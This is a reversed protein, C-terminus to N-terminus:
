VKSDQEQQQAHRMKVTQSKTLLICSHIDDLFRPLQTFSLKIQM